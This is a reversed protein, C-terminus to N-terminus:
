QLRAQTLESETKRSRCSSIFSVLAYGLLLAGVVPFIWLTHSGLWHTLYGVKPIVYIVKGRIQYDHVPNWPDNVNNSDGKTIFSRGEQTVSLGIIRHTVLTPDEPYPLFVIIDGITLEDVNTTNVGRTVVVDGASVRPEMSGSLVTLSMGSLTKPVAVLFVALTLFVVTVAAVIGSLIISATSTNKTKKTM